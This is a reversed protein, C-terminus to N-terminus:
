SDRSPENSGTSTLFYFISYKNLYKLSQSSKAVQGFCLRRTLAHEVMPLLRHEVFRNDEIVPIKKDAMDEIVRRSIADLDESKGFKM